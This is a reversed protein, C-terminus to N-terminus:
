EAALCLDMTPCTAIYQSVTNHYSSIYVGIDDLGVTALVVGIPLYVWSGDQQHKLGMGVM